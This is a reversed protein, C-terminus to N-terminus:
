LVGAVGYDHVHNTAFAFLDFGAESLEDLVWSPAGFHSGGSEQAPDGRYDNPLVELNTFALDADHLLDFVPRVAQDSRSLLRRQLISDGTLALRM